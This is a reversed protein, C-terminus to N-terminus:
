KSVLLKKYSVVGYRLNFINEYYRGTYFTQSFPSSIFKSGTTPTFLYKKNKERFRFTKEAPNYYFIAGNGDTPGAPVNYRLGTIAYDDIRLEGIYGNFGNVFMPSSTFGGTPLITAGIIIQDITSGRYPNNGLNLGSSRLTGNIYYRYERYGNYSSVGPFSTELNHFSFAVHNWANPTLTMNSAVGFTPM